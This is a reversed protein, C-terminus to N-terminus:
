EEQEIMEVKVRDEDQVGLAARIHRPAIIELKSDPYGPVEPLVIAGQIKDQITVPYCRAACFGERGPVIPIGTRKKAERWRALSDGERIEVNFTGPYPAFGLQSLFQAKVWPLDMFFSSERLGETVSGFLIINM